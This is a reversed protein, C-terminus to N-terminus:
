ERLDRIQTIDFTGYKEYIRLALAILVIVLALGVVISTLVWQKLSLILVAKPM